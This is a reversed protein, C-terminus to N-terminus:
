KIFNVEIVEPLHYEAKNINDLVIGTGLVSANGVTTSTTGPREPTVEMKVNRLGSKSCVISLPKDSRRIYKAGPTTIAKLYGEGDRYLKCHAGEINSVITVKDYTGSRMTGCGSLAITMLGALLLVGKERM